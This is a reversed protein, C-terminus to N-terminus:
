DGFNLSLSESLLSLSFTFLLALFLLHCSLTTLKGRRGKSRLEQEILLKNAVVVVVVM